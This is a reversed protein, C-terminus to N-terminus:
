CFRFHEGPGDGEGHREPPVVAGENQAARPLRWQRKCRPEGFQPQGRQAASDAASNALGARDRGVWLPPATGSLSFRRAAHRM